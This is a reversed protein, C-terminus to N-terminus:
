QPAPETLKHPGDWVEYEDAHRECYAEDYETDIVVATKGCVCCKKDM